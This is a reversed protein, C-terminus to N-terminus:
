IVNRLDEERWTDGHTVFMAIVVLPGVASAILGVQALRTYYWSRQGTPTCDALLAQCPGNYVAYALGWVCM